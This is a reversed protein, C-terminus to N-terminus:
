PGDVVTLDWECSGRGPGFDWLATGIAASVDIRWTEEVPSESSGTVVEDVYEFYREIGVAIDEREAPFAMTGSSPDLFTLIIMDVFDTCEENGGARAFEVTLILEDGAEYQAATTTEPTSTAEPAGTSETADETAPVDIVTETVVESAIEGPDAVPSAGCAAILM